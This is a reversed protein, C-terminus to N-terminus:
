FLITYLLKTVRNYKWSIQIRIQSILFRVSLARANCKNAEYCIAIFGKCVFNFEPLISNQAKPKQPKQLTWRFRNGRWREMLWTYNHSMRKHMYKYCTNGFNFKANFIPCSLYESIRKFCEIIEIVSLSFKEM